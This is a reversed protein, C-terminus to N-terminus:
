STSKSDVADVMGGDPSIILYIYINTGKSPSSGGRRAVVSELDATDAM